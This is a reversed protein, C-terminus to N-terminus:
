IRIFIWAHTQLNLPVEHLRAKDFDVLTKCFFFTPYKELLTTYAAPLEGQVGYM